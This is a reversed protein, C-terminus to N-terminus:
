KARCLWAAGEVHAVELGPNRALQHLIQWDLHQELAGVYFWRFGQDRMWAASEPTSMDRGYMETTFERMHRWYDVPGSELAAALNTHNTRHRTLLTVWMTADRSTIEGHELYGRGAILEGAPVNQEIWKIMRMDDPLVYRRSNPVPTLNKAGALAIVALCFAPLFKWWSELNRFRETAIGITLGALAAIAPDIALKWHQEDLLGMRPSGLFSPNMMLTLVIWGFVFWLAQRRRIAILIVAIAALSSVIAKRSTEFSSRIIGPGTLTPRDFRATAAPLAEVVIKKFLVGSRAEM